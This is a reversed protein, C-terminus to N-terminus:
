KTKLYELSNKTILEINGQCANMNLGETYPNVKSGDPKNQSWEFCGV